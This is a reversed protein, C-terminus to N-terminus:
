FTNRVRAERPKKGISKLFNRQKEETHVGSKMSPGRFPLYFVLAAASSVYNFFDCYTLSFVCYKIFVRYTHIFIFHSINEQCKIQACPMFGGSMRCIASTPNKVRVIDSMRMIDTMRPIDALYEDDPQIAM